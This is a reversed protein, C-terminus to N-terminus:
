TPMQPAPGMTRAQYLRNVLWVWRRHQEGDTLTRTLERAQGVAERLAGADYAPLGEELPVELLRLYESAHGAGGLRPGLVDAVFQEWTIAGDNAFTAFALYNLENVTSFVSVEGFVNMGQMGSTTVLRALDAFDRAVPRYREGGPPAEGGGWQSGMHTRMINTGTPLAQVHAPTLEEQVRPWYNRNITYQAITEAPLGALPAITPLDLINDFYAEAVLWLDPKASRAAEFLAPYLEVTDGLSWRGGQDGRRGECLQCRCMGYDGTEFNIGGIEFEESLWHIAEAHWRRNAEQTPCALSSWFSLPGPPMEPQARLEPHAQLWHPLNYKHKGDRYIGGYSNIGVGPIIRVRRETAYRALEQATEVGGHHDRLFGYVVVGNLRQRSMFDILRQYDALFGPGLKHYLASAAYEQLGRQELYWNTSHDQTWFLRYPLAPRRRVEGARFVTEDPGHDLWHDVLEYVAYLVGTADAGILTLLPQEDRQHTRVLCGEAGLEDLTELHLAQQTTADLEATEALIVTPGPLAASAAELPLVSPSHSGLAQCLQTIAFPHREGDAVITIAEGPQLRAFVPYPM